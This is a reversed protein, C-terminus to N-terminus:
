CHLLHSFVLSLGTVMRMYRDLSALYLVVYLLSFLVVVLFCEPTCVEALALFEQVRCFVLKGISLLM